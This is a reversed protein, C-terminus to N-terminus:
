EVRDPIYTVSAHRASPGTLSSLGAGRVVYTSRLGGARLYRAVARARATSLSQNNASMGNDGNYGVVRVTGTRLGVPLQAILSDLARKAQRSLTSSMPDFYVLTRVRKPTAAPADVAVQVSVSLVQIEASARQRVGTALGSFQLTYRGEALTAPIPVSGSLTGDDGAALSGLLLTRDGDIIYVNAVSGALLGTGRVTVRGGINLRFPGSQPSQLSSSGPTLAAVDLRVGGGTVAFSGGARDETISGDVLSGGFTITATGVAPRPVGVPTASPTPTPTPTPSPTTVANPTPTASPTATPVPSPSPAPALYTFATTLSASQTDPNTVTLTVAGATRAPTTATITTASTVTVATAATGGLTVTAGTTFGTGTITIATGGALPGTTPTVSTVTPAPALYTFGESLTSALGGPNTVVISGVGATGVAGTTATITKGSADVKEVSASVGKITVTAGDLFGTGTITVTTGGGIPGSSPDIADVTPATGYTFGGALTGTVGESTTLVVDGAGATAAEGTIATVVGDKVSQISAAVGAISVETVDGFQSGTITVETEGRLPGSTPSISAISPGSGYTYGNALTSTTRDRNTVVVDYTGDREARATTATIATGDENVTVSTAEFGGISVTLRDVFGSGTITVTTGGEVPGSSPVVSTVSIGSGYIFGNRKTGASADANTVVVDAAGETKSEGTVATISTASVLKVDTADVGGISVAVGEAFGSGTITIATGGALPGSSPTVTTVAVTPAATAPPSGLVGVASAVLAAVVVGILPSLRRPLRDTTM